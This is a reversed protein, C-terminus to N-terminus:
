WSSRWRVFSPDRLSSTAIGFILARAHRAPASARISMRTVSTLRRSNAINLTRATAMRNAASHFTRRVPSGEEAIPRLRGHVLEDTAALAAAGVRQWRMLYISAATLDPPNAAIFFQLAAQTERSNSAWSAFKRAQAAQRHGAPDRLGACCQWCEYVGTRCVIM